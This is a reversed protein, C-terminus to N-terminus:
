KELLLDISEIFRMQAQLRRDVSNIGLILDFLLENVMAGSESLFVEGTCNKSCRLRCVITHGSEYFSLSLLSQTTRRM